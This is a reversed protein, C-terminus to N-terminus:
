YPGSGRMCHVWRVFLDVKSIGGAGILRRDELIDILDQAQDVLSNYLEYLILTERVQATTFYADMCMLMLWNKRDNESRANIVIALITNFALDDIAMNETPINVQHAFHVKLLGSNPIAWPITGNRLYTEGDKHHATITTEKSDKESQRYTLSTFACSSNENAMNILESLIAVQYPQGLNLTYPSDLSPNSHNFLGEAANFTCNQMMVFCRLGKLITRFISRAGAESLPNDNLDLREM